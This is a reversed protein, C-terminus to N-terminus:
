AKRHSWIAETLAAIDNDGAGAASAIKLSEVLAETMKIPLGTTNFEKCVDQM